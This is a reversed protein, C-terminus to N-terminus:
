TGEKLAAAIRGSLNSTCTPDGDELEYVAPHAERLLGRLRKVLTEAALARTRWQDVREIKDRAMLPCDVHHRRAARWEDCCRLREIEADKAAVLDLLALLTSTTSVEELEAVAAAWSWFDREKDEARARECLERLAKLDLTM